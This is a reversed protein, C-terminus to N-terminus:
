ASAFLPHLKNDLHVVEPKSPLLFDPTPKGTHWGQIYMAGADKAARYDEETEIAEAVVPTGNAALAHIDACVEEISRKQACVKIIDWLNMRSRQYDCVKGRHDDMAIKLGFSRIRRILATLSPSDMSLEEDIEIVVEVGGEEKTRKCASLFMELAWLSSAVYRSLNVFVYYQSPPPKRYRIRALGGIDMMLWDFVNDGLAVPPPGQDPFRALLEVGVLRKSQACVIRQQLHELQM